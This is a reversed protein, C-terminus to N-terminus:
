FSKELPSLPRKNDVMKMFKDFFVQLRDLLLFYRQFFLSTNQINAM